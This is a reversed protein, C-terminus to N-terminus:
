ATTVRVPRAKVARPVEARCDEGVLEVTQQDLLVPILLLPVTGLLERVLGGLGQHHKGGVHRQDLVLLELLVDLPVGLVVIGEELVKRISEDLQDLEPNREGTLRLVAKNKLGRLLYMRTSKQHIQLTNNKRKKKKKTKIDLMKYTIANQFAIGLYVYYHSLAKDSATYQM